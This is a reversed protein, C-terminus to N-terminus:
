FRMWEDRDDHTGGGVPLRHLMGRVHELPEPDLVLPVDHRRVARRDPHRLERRASFRAAVRLLAQAVDGEADAFAWSPLWARAREQLEVEFRSARRPDLKPASPTRM